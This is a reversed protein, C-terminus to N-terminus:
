RASTKKELELAALAAGLVENEPLSGALTRVRVPDAKAIDAYGIRVREHFADDERDIRDRMRGDERERQAVRERSLRVPIDVFFTADPRRGGSAAESLAQLMKLDLGRGYGQYALTSDIFRDCLVIQGAHLAPEIVEAVLHQRSANLLLAETLPAITLTRDLFVARIRDGVPTGGPERTEIVESGNARLARAVGRM